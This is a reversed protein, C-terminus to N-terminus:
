SKRSTKTMFHTILQELKKEGCKPCKYEKGEYEKLSLILSIDEKCKPCHFEYTPM